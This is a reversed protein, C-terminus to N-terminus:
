ILAVSAAGAVGNVVANLPAVGYHTKLFRVHQYFRDTSLARSGGQDSIAPTDLVRKGVGARANRMLARGYRIVPMPGPQVSTSDPVDVLASRHRREAQREMAWPTRRSARSHRDALARCDATRSVM